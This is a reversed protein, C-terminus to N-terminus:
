VFDFDGRDIQGTIGDLDIRSDQWTIITDGGKRSIDLDRFQIKGSIEIIDKGNQFGKITDHGQNQNGNYVFVDAGKGGTLIDNGKGGDLRDVGGGGLLKDTGDGGFLTDKGVAGFIKDANKGGNLVDNGSNGYLKDNGDAGRMADNGFGGIMVDKGAGGFLGDNGSEGFLTDNGFGGFLQDNGDSSQLTDHGGNGTLKNRASNGILWDDGTGGIANEILSRTDEFYLLANFINGRAFTDNGLKALQADGFVSYSGPTLDVTVDDRYASLDYTDNGNGDWITAFIRNAGPSIGAAGNVLTEGTTPDWKYTTNGSNTTFDAGYVYQLAAIDAMMFSQAYGWQENQYNNGDHGVYSRYTMVSYEMSDFDDPLKRTLGDDFTTHGHALGLAHGIEHYFNIWGFNGAQADRYNEVTGFWVDGNDDIDFTGNNQPFDAVRATPSDSSSTEALRIEAFQSNQDGRSEVDQLTLGEFSFGASAKPGIDASLVAHAATKMKDTMTNFNAPLDGLQSYNYAAASVSFAYYITADAWAATTLIGDVFDSGSAFIRKTSNSFGTM